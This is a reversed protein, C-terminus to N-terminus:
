HHKAHKLREKNPDRPIAPLRPNKIPRRPLRLDREPPSPLRIFEEEIPRISEPNGVFTILAAQEIWGKHLQDMWGHMPRTPKKSRSHSPSKRTWVVGQCELNNRCTSSRGRIRGSESPAGPLPAGKTTQIIPRATTVLLQEFASAQVMRRQHPQTKASASGRSKSRGTPAIPALDFAGKSQFHRSAQTISTRFHDSPADLYREISPPIAKEKGLLRARFGGRIRYRYTASTGFVPYGNDHREIDWASLNRAPCTGVMSLTFNGKINDPMSDYRIITTDSPHGDISINLITPMRSLYDDDGLGAVLNARVEVDSTKVPRVQHYRNAARLRSTNLKWLHSYQFDVVDGKLLALHKYFSELEDLLTRYVEVRDEIFDDLADAEARTQELMDKAKDLEDSAEDREGQLEEIDSELTTIASKTDEIESLWISCAQPSRTCESDLQEQLDELSMMADELEEQLVDLEDDIQDITDELHAIDIELSIIQGHLEDLDDLLELNELRIEILKKSLKRSLGQIVLMSECAQQVLIDQLGSRPRPGLTKVTGKTPPLVWAVRKFQLDTIVNSNTDNVFKRTPRELNSVSEKLGTIRADATTPLLATGSVLLAHIARKTTRSPM